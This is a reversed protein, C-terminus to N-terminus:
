FFARIHHRIETKGFIMDIAVVDFRCAKDGVNNVYYYMKAVRKLQEQKRPTVSEEPSGYVHNTRAKVEVFILTEEHEAVIDIEGIRGYRFNKKLIKYGLGALFRAAEEEGVKAKTPKTSKAAPKVPIPPSYRM